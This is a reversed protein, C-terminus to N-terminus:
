QELGKDLGRRTLMWIVRTLTQVRQWEGRTARIVLRLWLSAYVSPLAYPYFTRTLLLRSRVSYYESRFRREDSQKSQTTGISSGEKHYVISKTAYGLKMMQKARLGWDVDEYYLFYKEEMLGIKAILENRVLISAGVIYDLRTEIAAEDTSHQADEHKGLHFTAGTWKHYSGGARAQLLNRDHYYVLTSGCMGLAKNAEMKEILASLAKSDVITDNNLIWIYDAQQAMAQKIGINNGGAFGLNYENVILVHQPFSQRIMIVSDNSSANDVIIIKYNSYNLTKLSHLCELTDQWGNFNLIIIYVLPEIQKV